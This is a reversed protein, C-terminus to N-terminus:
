TTLRYAQYSITRGYPTVGRKTTRIAKGARELALLQTRATPLPLDFMAAYENATLATQDDAVARVGADQLAALWADRSIGLESM